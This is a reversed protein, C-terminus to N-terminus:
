KIPRLNDKAAAKLIESKAKEAGIKALDIELSIVEELKTALGSTSEIGHLMTLSKVLSELYCSGGSDTTMFMEIDDNM